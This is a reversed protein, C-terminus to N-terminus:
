HRLATGAWPTNWPNCGRVDWRNNFKPWEVTCSFRAPKLLGSTNLSVMDLWTGTNCLALMATAGREQVLEYEQCNLMARAISQVCGGRIILDAVTDLLTCFTIVFFYDWYFFLWECFVYKYTTFIAHRWGAPLTKCVSMIGALLKGTVFGNPWLKVCYEMLIIFSYQILFIWSRRVLWWCGHLHSSSLCCGASCCGPAVWGHSDEAALYRWSEGCM